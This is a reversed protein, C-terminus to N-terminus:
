SKVLAFASFVGTVEVSGEDMRVDEQGVVLLNKRLYTVKRFLIFFLEREISGDAQKSSQFIMVFKYSTGM